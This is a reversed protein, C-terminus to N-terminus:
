LEVHRGSEGVDSYLVLSPLLKRKSLEEGCSCNLCMGGFDEFPVVLLLVLVLVEEELLTMLLM